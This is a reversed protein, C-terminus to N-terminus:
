LIRDYLVISFGYYYQQVDVVHKRRRIVEIEQGSNTREVSRVKITKRWIYILSDKEKKKEKMKKVEAQTLKISVNLTSHNQKHQSFVGKLSNM